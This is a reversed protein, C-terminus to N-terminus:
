SIKHVFKSSVLGRQIEEPKHATWAGQMERLRQQVLRRSRYFAAKNAYTPRNTHVKHLRLKEALLNSFATDNDDGTSSTWTIGDTPLRGLWPKLRLPIAKLADSQKYHSYFHASDNAESERGMGVGWSALIPSPLTPTNSTAPPEPNRNIGSDHIRMRGFLDMRNTFTRPCYPCHLRTRHTYAQEGPVPEGAETRHIRLHGVLDIHSTFNRDCHPCNYDQDEGRGSCSSSSSSSSSNPPPSSSSYAPPPVATPAARSTCNIRLHRILGIRARFTRQCRPCTLLPQIDANRLPRLQSKHAERKVKAAAIRNVGYIAAGTKVIMRWTPRDHALDEWNAPNIQLRKLSSKLTDKYRRIQGGQRRFGTAVDGLLTM